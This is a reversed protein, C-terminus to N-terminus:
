PVETIRGFTLPTITGLAMIHDIVVDAAVDRTVGMGDALMTYGDGGANLFDITALSYMTNDPLIPTGDDKEASLVRMGPPNSLKYTFKFGSIQGFKGAPAPLAGVSNELMAWLQSGTVTRTIVANGFPLVTFVDGKVLDYPPGMAYGPTTRRLMTDAPLYSSPLPARIGGGNMFGLETGYRLRIADAILDGIAVEMLREINNGRPFVDAAVGIVGDLQATLDARYPALMAEVAPDPVVASSVPTIFQASSSVLAGSYPVVKLAVRAYTRGKSKNEVVLAGNVVTNVEVDTHDGFVAHFGSIGNAFDILPGTYTGTGPDFTTAGLHAIAIFVRAGEAEAASRASMAALIPDDISITGLNGPLTLDPADPNTIGIVAVKVGGVTMLHYPEAVGTLNASVNKLNSSVYKFKALDIMTQLHGLGQDFNHNGLTDVDFGMLNMAKVAPEEDFFSSLPPSASYADGATLTITNPNMMREAQFYSSLVAAGGIDV